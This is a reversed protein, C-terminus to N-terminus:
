SLPAWILLFAAWIWAQDLLFMGGALVAVIVAERM